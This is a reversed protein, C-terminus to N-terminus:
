REAGAANSTSAIRAPIAVEDGEADPESRDAPSPGLRISVLLLLAAISMM